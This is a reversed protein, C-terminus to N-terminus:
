SLELTSANMTNELNVLSQKSNFPAGGIIKLFKFGASLKHLQVRNIMNFIPSPKHLPVQNIMNFILSLTSSALIIAPELIPSITRMGRMEKSGCDIFVKKKRDLSSPKRDLHYKYNNDIFTLTLCQFVDSNIKRIKHKGMTLKIDCKGTYSRM